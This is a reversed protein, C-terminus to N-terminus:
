TPELGAFLDDETSGDLFRPYFRSFSESRLLLHRLGPLAWALRPISDQSAHARIAARKHSSYNSVDIRTTVPLDDQAADLLNIDKNRGVATPDQGLIQMLRAALRLGRRGIATYYLKQPCPASFGVASQGPHLQQLARFAETTAQCVRIHDPHGYGGFPDHTIVIQPHLQELVRTLDRVLRELPQQILARPHDNAPTGRMGSDRYSLNFVGTIGLAAVARELERARVEALKHRSDPYGPDVSSGAAGDTVIVAYVNVGEASYRALTGGAGYSEDDPHAFVGLLTRQQVM